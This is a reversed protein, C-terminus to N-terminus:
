AGTPCPYITILNGNLDVITCTANDFNLDIGMVAKPERLRVEKNFVLYAFIGNRRYSVLVEGLRWSGDLYKDLYDYWKLELEVWEDNLIAIRLARAKLDIKYDLPHIRATLKKLLPRSGGNGKTAEVVERARKYIESAHHARFGRGRLKNYYIEHLTAKSFTKGLCWLEDVIEQVADRHAKLFQILREGREPAVAEVKATARVRM